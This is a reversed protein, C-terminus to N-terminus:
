GAPKSEEKPTELVFPTPKIGALCSTDLGKLSARDIFREAIRVPCDASISHGQYPIELFLSNPYGASLWPGVRVLM